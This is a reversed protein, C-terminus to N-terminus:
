EPVEPEFYVIAHDIEIRSAGPWSIEESWEYVQMAAPLLVMARPLDLSRVYVWTDAGHQTEISRLRDILQRVNM